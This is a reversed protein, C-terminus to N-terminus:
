GKKTILATAWGDYDGGCEEAKRRLAITHSTIDSLVLTGEHYLRVCYRGDDRDGSHESDAAFRNHEAWIVFDVSDGKQDFYIWHDVRRPATGDDGHQALQERVRLAHLVQWDDPTPYLDNFYAECTPDARYVLRIDYGSEHCLDHLFDQWTTQEQATYTYFYRQGAVTIRGVYWDEHSQAFAIVADEIASVLEFEDQSPFGEEHLFKYALRLKALNKPASDRISDRVGLNLSIFAENDGITCPFYAWDEHM